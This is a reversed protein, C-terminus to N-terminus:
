VEIVDWTGWRRIQTEKPLNPLHLKAQALTFQQADTRLGSWSFHYKEDIDYPVAQVTGKTPHELIFLLNDV